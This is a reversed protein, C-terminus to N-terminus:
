ANPKLAQDPGSTRPGFASQEDMVDGPRSEPITAKWGRSDQKM